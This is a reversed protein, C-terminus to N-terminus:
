TWDDLNIAWGELDDPYNPNRKAARRVEPDPDEQSIEVLEEAGLVLAQEVWEAKTIKVDNLFWNEYEVSGDERYEIWAPGDVRHMENNLYWREYEVIGDPYYRIKAPGDERHMKGGLYWWEEEIKGDPYYDRRIEPESSELIPYPKIHKM